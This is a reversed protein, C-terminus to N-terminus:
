FQEKELTKQLVQKIKLSHASLLKNCNLIKLRCRNMEENLETQDEKSANEPFKCQEELGWLTTELKKRHELISDHYLIEEKIQILLERIVEM